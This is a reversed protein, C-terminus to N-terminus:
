CWRMVLSVDVGDHWDRTAHCREGIIVPLTSAQGTADCKDIHKGFIVTV